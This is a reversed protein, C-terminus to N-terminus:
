GVRFEIGPPAVVGPGRGLLRQLDLGIMRGAQRQEFADFQRLSAEVGSFLLPRIFPMKRMIPGTLSSRGVPIYTARGGILRKVGRPAAKWATLFGVAQFAEGRHTCLRRPARIQREEFAM